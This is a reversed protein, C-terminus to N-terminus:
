RPAALRLEGRALLGLQGRLLVHLLERRQAGLVQLHVVGLGGVHRREDLRLGVRQQGRAAAHRDVLAGVGQQQLVGGVPERVHAAQHRREVDRHALHEDLRADDDDVVVELALQARAQAEGVDLLVAGVPEHGRGARGGAGVLDIPEAMVLTFLVPMSRERDRNRGARGGRIAVVDVQRDAVGAPLMREQADEAVVEEDVELQRGRLRLRLAFMMEEGRTM